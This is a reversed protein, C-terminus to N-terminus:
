FRIGGFSKGNLSCRWPCAKIKGEEELDGFGSSHDGRFGKLKKRLDEVRAVGGRVLNRIRDRREPALAPHAEQIM